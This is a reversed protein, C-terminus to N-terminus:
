ALRSRGTRTWVGQGRDWSILGPTAGLSRRIPVPLWSLVEHAPARVYGSLLRRELFGQAEARYTEIADSLHEGHFRFGGLHAAVVDLQASRAFRTWLYLDGALRLTALQEFDLERHLTRLWFTSEQQIFRGGRVGYHGSRILRQDYRWPVKASILAGSPAYIARMGTLWETGVNEFCERVVSLCHPSYYDGANLYSVVDGDALMMGKVLADYMGQDPESIVRLEAREHDAWSGRAEAVTADTSGGDVVIYQLFVDDDNLASQTRISRVTDAIWGQANYCPTVISFKM